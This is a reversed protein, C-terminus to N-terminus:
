QELGPSLSDSFPGHHSDDQVRTRSGPAPSQDQVTCCMVGGGSFGSQTQAGSCRMEAADVSRCCSLVEQLTKSAERQQSEIVPYVPSITQIALGVTGTM